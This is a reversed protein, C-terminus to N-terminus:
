FCQHSSCIKYSFQEKNPSIGAAPHSMMKLMISVSRFSYITLGCVVPVPIDLFLRVNLLRSANDTIDETIITHSYCLLMGVSNLNKNCLLFLSDNM